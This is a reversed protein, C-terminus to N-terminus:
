VSPEPTVIVVEEKVAKGKRIQERYPYGKMLDEIDWDSSTQTSNVVKPAQTTVEQLQQQQLRMMQQSFPLSPVFPATLPQPTAAIYSRPPLAAPSFNKVPPSPPPQTVPAETTTKAQQQQQQHHLQQQQQQQQHHLQQQQQHHQQPQYPGTRTIIGASPTTTTAEPQQEKRFRSAPAGAVSPAEHSSSHRLDSYNYRPVYGQQPHNYQYQQQSSQYHSSPAAQHTSSPAPHQPMSASPAAAQETSRHKGWTDHAYHGQGGEDWGGFCRKLM